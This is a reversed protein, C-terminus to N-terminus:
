AAVETWTNSAGTPVSAWPTSRINGVFSSMAVGTLIVSAPANATGESFNIELGTLEVLASAVVTSTGDSFSASVGTLSVDVSISGIATGVNVNAQSGTVEFSATGTQTTTGIDFSIDEGSPAGVAGAQAIATGVSSEIQEGTVSLNSDAAVVSTGLETSAEVGTVTDVISQAEAIVSGISFDMQDEAAVVLINNDTVLGVNNEAINLQIGTLVVTANDEVESAFPASAFSFDAFSM